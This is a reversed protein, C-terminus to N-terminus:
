RVGEHCPLLYDKGVGEAWSMGGDSRGAPRKPETRKKTIKSGKRALHNDPDAWRCTTIFYRGKYCCHLEPRKGRALTFGGLAERPARPIMTTASPANPFQGPFLYAALAVFITLTVSTFLTSNPAALSVRDRDARRDFLASAYGFIGRHLRPVASTPFAGLGYGM